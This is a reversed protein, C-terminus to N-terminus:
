MYNLYLFVVVRVNFLDKKDIIVEEKGQFSVLMDVMFFGFEVKKYVIKSINEVFVEM